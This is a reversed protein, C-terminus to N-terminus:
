AADEVLLGAVFAAIHRVSPYDFTLSAPLTLGFDSELESKVDMGMVSDLGLTIFDAAPDVEDPSGFHLVKAVREAVTRGVLKLREPEPRAALDALDIRADGPVTDAPDAVRAYLANALPLQGAFVPWDFRNVVRQAAGPLSWLRHLTRLAWSPSFFRVGSREIERIYASDLRASMGVRAWSGWNVALAPLGQRTRLHALGDLFANAAAYRAQGVGGRVAAVSAVSSYVTFFDLEPFSAAARHLLWGGYVKPALQEDIAEWTLEPILGTGIAGAAHVLGGVPHPLRHLGTVLEAVGDASSVDARLLAVEAREELAALVDAAEETARGSRSVLALHRAGLDVLMRATVLGLGGLGGTIVYTRDPRVTFSGARAAPSVADEGSDEGAGAFTVVAVDAAGTSLTRLAEDVEDPGYVDPGNAAADAALAAAASPPTGGTRATVAASPLTLTGALRGRHSVTVEAGPAYAADPGTAVVTGAYATATVPVTGAGDEGTDRVAGPVDHRTLAAATVSVRVEDGLPEPAGPAAAVVTTRDLDGAPAHVEFSGQWAPTADGALLRRVHRRGARYGVQFEDKEQARWEALLAAGAAGDAAGDLDILTARLHPHENLLVHGFGWLSAAAVQEAGDARDGPLWQARETVLWVRPARRADRAGAAAVVDLLETFNAESEARLREYSMEGSGPRWFWAVDTISAHETLAARLAAADPVTSVRVGAGPGNAELAALLAPGVADGAGPIVVHREQAPSGPAAPLSRRLWGLRHTFHPGGDAGGPRALVAGVIEAVPEADEAGDLLLIDALQGAGDRRVRAVMRLREGRPKKFLRVGRAAHLTRVPGDDDLAVVAQLASELLAAPLQEVPAADCGTLDATVVGGDHRAVRVVLSPADGFGRDVAALDTALDVADAGALVAGPAAALALLGGDAGTGTDALIRARAYCRPAGDNDEGDRAGEVVGTVEVDWAHRGAQGDARRLRTTLRVPGEGSLPLPEPLALDAVTARTHGLVADEAALLLDAWAAPPLAAEGAIRHGAIAGGLEQPTFDATFEWVGEPLEAAPTREGLLPHRAPGDARRTRSKVSPLWYPKRQFAYLPLQVKALGHGAHYADWDVPLGAAYFDALARLTAAATTDQRRLSALWVHEDAPVCRRGLAGLMGSPGLEVFAHRGRKAVARVGAMFRVPEGIHRVWYDPKSIERMRAVKGTLNSVLSIKPELFTIGELVARFEDFVEAMLPSHFAHSVALPQVRIGQAALEEGVQALAAAAGSVVCAEPGNVAALALDQHGELFPEVREAPASVSSMGGPTSVSQMLRARAAVLTVADPLSFLGAVTAAVVEGISHGLLVNPKVGWSMWLKALAYELTFLSAQTYLTQHVAEPDAATGLLLERVSVDLHAGFLRDCEDVVERFLPFREHLAAGMGPYQSGQGTFMFAVKRVGSPEVTHEPRRVADLVELLDERSEVPAAVRHTFHARGVNTTYSLRAVDLDPREAVFQRYHEAQERLAAGSKASLTFLPAAADDADRAAGPRTGHSQEPPQELVVAGITGAFGFSNVAARRVPAKWPECETPVRVPYVEWPIRSSPTTFNLHPYITASRIQLLAKIVGVLGSAPEMHGLNTKVSGVLLPDDKTRVDAFVNSIAGLEIPDGLPTGTGHAEVYTVDGPELGADALALKLVREQAPGNPVTLGASDGDQGVATGRVVALVNDGDRTADALRKLVIVGVGEARAYGDASEDFTKCQGDGALMQANSFMVPIRPNHLANVGGSLAIDCEGLRLATVAMHLAALSSSCATDVSISPGRWGLFYSLRGALPFLTIGSALHGDLEEYPLSDLELAYDVSSAGIYVGGNGRRLPTPDINAHELAQWATELLMRQQPDIYQAEKPSINFFGADFLDIRDLYGGGRARIKGKDDPGQPTFAAVDWRDDPLPGIGSGGTRLFEEFEDLSTSGGPFRLGVGVIAVPEGGRERDHQEPLPTTVPRHDAPM